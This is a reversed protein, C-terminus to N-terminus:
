PTPGARTGQLTAQFGGGPKEVVIMLFHLSTPASAATITYALTHVQGYPSPTRTDKDVTATLGPRMGAQVLQLFSAEVKAPDAARAYVACAQTAARTALAFDGITTSIGWAAGTGGEGVFVALPAPEKIETLEHAAAWAQVGAPNGLNPVCADVFIKTLFAAPTPPAAPAQPAAGPAPPPDDALAPSALVFAAVAALACPNRVCAGDDFRHPSGAAGPMSVDASSLL